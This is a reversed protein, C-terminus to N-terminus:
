PREDGGEKQQQDHEDDKSRDDLKRLESITQMLELAETEWSMSERARAPNMAKQGAKSGM